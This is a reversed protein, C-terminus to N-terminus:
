KRIKMKFVFIRIESSESFIRLGVVFMLRGTSNSVLVNLDRCSELGTM